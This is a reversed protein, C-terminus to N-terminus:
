KSYIELTLYEFNHRRFYIAEFLLVEYAITTQM